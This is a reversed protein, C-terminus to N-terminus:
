PRYTLRLAISASEPLRLADAPPFGVVWAIQPALPSGYCVVPRAHREVPPVKADTFLDQLKRTGPAGLPQYADGAQWNRVSLVTRPPLYLWVEQTPDLARFADARQELPPLTFPERELRGGTPLLCTQGAAFPIPRWPEPPRESANAIYRLQGPRLVLFGDGCSLKLGEGAAWAELLEDQNAAGVHPVLANVRLWQELRRRVAARPFKAPPPLDLPVDKRGAPLQAAAWEVAADAEEVLQRSRGVGKVLPHPAMKEWVPVVHQRIRNRTFDPDRNSADEWWEVQAARLAACLEAHRLTLFPKVRTPSARMAQVPRPAALGDVGSGRALRMAWTEVVDDAQHGTLVAAAGHDQAVNEFFAWRIQRAADETREGRRDDPVTGAVFRLGLGDALGKVGEVEQMAETRWGHDMSAVVINTKPFAARMVLALAVSDAGGSVGLVWTEQQHADLWARASRDWKEPPFHTLLISSAEASM